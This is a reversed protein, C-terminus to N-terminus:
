FRGVAAYPAQPPPPELRLRGDVVSAGAPGAVVPNCDVEAVEPHAAVVVARVADSM